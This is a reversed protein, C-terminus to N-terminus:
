ALELSRYRVLYFMVADECLVNYVPQSANLWLEKPLPIDGELYQIKKTRTRPVCPARTRELEQPPGCWRYLILNKIVEMTSM